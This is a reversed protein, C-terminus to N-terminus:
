SWKCPVPIYFDPQRTIRNYRSFSQVNVVEEHQSAIMRSAVLYRLESPRAQLDIAPELLLSFFSLRLQPTDGPFYNFVGSPYPM